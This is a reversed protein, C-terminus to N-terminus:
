DWGARQLPGGRGGGEFRVAGLEIIRGRVPDVGTTECDIAVFRALALRALEDPSIPSPDPLKM